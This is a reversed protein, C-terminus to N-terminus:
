SNDKNKGKIALKAAESAVRIERELQSVLDETERVHKAMTYDQTWNARVHASKLTERLSNFRDEIHEDTLTSVAPESDFLEKVVEDATRITEKKTEGFKRRTVTKGGDPSEYIYPETM